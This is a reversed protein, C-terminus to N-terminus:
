PRSFNSLSFKFLSQFFELSFISRKIKAKKRPGKIATIMNLEVKYLPHLCKYKMYGEKIYMDMKPKFQKSLIFILLSYLFAVKDM